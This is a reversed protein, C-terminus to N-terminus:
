GLCYRPASGLSVTWAKSYMEGDGNRFTSETVTSMSHSPDLVLTLWRARARRPLAVHWSINRACSGFDGERTDLTWPESDQRVHVSFTDTIHTCQGIVTGDM